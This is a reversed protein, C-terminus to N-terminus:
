SMALSSQTLSYTIAAPWDTSDMTTVWTATSVGMVTEAGVREAVRELVLPYVLTCVAEIVILWVIGAVM